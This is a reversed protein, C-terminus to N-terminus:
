FLDFHGIKIARLNWPPSTLLDLTPQSEPTPDVTVPAPVPQLPQVPQVPRVPQDPVLPRADRPSGQLLSFFMRLMCTSSDDTYFIEQRVSVEVEFIM